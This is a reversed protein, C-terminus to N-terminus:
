KLRLYRCRGPWRRSFLRSSFEWRGIWRRFRWCNRNLDWAEAWRKTVAWAAISFMNLMSHWSILLGVILCKRAKAAEADATAAVQIYIPYPPKRSPATLKDPGTEAIRAGAACWCICLAITKM